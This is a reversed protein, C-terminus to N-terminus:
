LGEANMDHLIRHGDEGAPCISLSIRGNAQAYALKQAEEPDVSLTVIYTDNRGLAQVAIVDKRELITKTVSLGLVDRNLTVLLDVQNGAKLVRGQPDSEDVLISFGRLGEQVVSALGSTRNEKTKLKRKTVPEGKLVPMGTEVGVLGSKSEFWDKDTYDKPFSRLILVSETIRTGTPIDARAVVIEKLETDSEAANGRFFATGTLIVFTILGAAASYFAPTKHTLKKMM